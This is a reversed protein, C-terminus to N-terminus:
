AYYGRNFFLVSDVSSSDGSSMDSSYASVGYKQSILGDVSNVILDVDDNLANRLVSINLGPIAFNSGALSMTGQFIEVADVKNEANYFVHFDGFDDTTNKSVPSKKFEKLHMGALSERVKDRGEGFEIKGVKEYSIIKFNM